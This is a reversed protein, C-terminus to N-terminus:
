PHGAHREESARAPVQPTRRRGSRRCDTACAQVVMLGPRASRGPLAPAGRFVNRQLVTVRRSATSWGHDLQEDGLVRSTVVVAADVTPVEGFSGQWTASPSSPWAAGLPHAADGSYM